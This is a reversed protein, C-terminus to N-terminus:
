WSMAPSSVAGQFAIYQRWLGLLRALEVNVDGHRWRGASGFTTV